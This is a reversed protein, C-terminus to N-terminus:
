DNIYRVVGQNEHRCLLGRQELRELALTAAHIDSQEVKQRGGQRFYEAVQQPTLVTLESLHVQLYNKIAQEYWVILEHENLQPQQTVIMVPCPAEKLINRSISGLFTRRLQQLWSNGHSGVIILHVQQEKAVRVIEEAPSGTRTITEIQPLPFLQEELQTRVRQLVTEAQKYQEPSPPFIQQELPHGPHEVSVQTIPIVHLLYFTYSSAACGFLSRVTHVAQQTAPSFTQDIGLLIRQEM